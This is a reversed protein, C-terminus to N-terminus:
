VTVTISARLSTCMYMYTAVGEGKGCANYTQLTGGWGECDDMGWGRCMYMYMYTCLFVCVYMFVLVWEGDLTDWSDVSEM